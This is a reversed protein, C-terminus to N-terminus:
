RDGIDWNEGRYGESTSCGIVLLQGQQFAAQEKFETLIAELEQECKLIMFRVRRSCIKLGIWAQNSTSIRMNALKELVGQM